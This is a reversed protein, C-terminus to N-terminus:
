RGLRRISERRREIWASLLPAGAFTALTVAKLLTDISDPDM